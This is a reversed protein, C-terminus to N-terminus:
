DILSPDRLYKMALEYQSEMMQMEEETLSRTLRQENVIEKDLYVLKYNQKM